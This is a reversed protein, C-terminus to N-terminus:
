HMLHKTSKRKLNTKRIKMKFTMLSMRLKEKLMKFSTDKSVIVFKINMM